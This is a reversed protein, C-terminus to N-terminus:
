FQQGIMFHPQGGGKKGSLDYDFGYAWDIGIQGIMPLWLRLGVGASRKLLFPDFDRMTTFANGAEAFALGYIMTQGQQVFPYRVEFTYKNYAKSQGTSPTLSGNEYGRLGIVDVGYLNYGSMGDGGVQFGEFPSPKDEKYSGIFGFNASAHLVLKQNQSLPFYWDAKLEWKHYEIWRYRQQASIKESSYDKGDFLSYPPTLTMSASFESGGNPYYPNTVTNRSLVTRLAVINSTGNSFGLFGDWDKLNYAQYMIENYLGFMHDPWRLRRGIGVSAGITRFHKSGSQWAYYADTQDSYYFGVTLSNPKKGGLWPETFSLSLAKYYSGNSQARIAVQQNEGHPYPRWAGKKLANKMSFNNLRLGVSGVFMGDGWGGSIEVQDSAQEELPFTLNVLDNSVPVINPMASEPLFHQLQGIRTITNMLLERNYLEAPRVMLERRIVHDYVRTNGTITIANISAQQGEIIKIHLDLSDPGVIIEQPEIDSMLYGNNQYLSSVSFKMPNAESKIGLQKYISKRDYTDGTEIGLLANLDETPYVSNGMWVINRYYFKNGEEVTIKVGMRKENIPYISDSLIDANRYGKSNYFELLNEQDEEYKARNFKSSQFINWNKQKTKKLTRRLRRDSFVENGEFIVEGIKVKPGKDIKFTVSVANERLTDTKTILDVEVNHFSKERFYNKITEISTNIRFDSLETGRRLSLKDTLDSIEGKRAGEFSWSYVLPRTTLYIHIYASDAQTQVLTKVDAFRRQNWLNRIATSLYDGPLWVTDGRQMGTQSILIEPDLAVAGHVRIDKVIYQRPNDSDMFPYDQILTSDPVPWDPTQANVVPMGAVSLLGIWLLALIRSNM